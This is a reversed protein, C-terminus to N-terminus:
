VINQMIIIKSTPLSVVYSRAGHKGYPIKYRALAFGKGRRHHRDLALLSLLTEQKIEGCIGMQTGM